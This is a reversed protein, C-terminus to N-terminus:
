SLPDIRGQIRVVYCDGKKAKKARAAIAPWFRLVRWAQDDLLFHDFAHALFFAIVGASKLAAREPPNSMQSRDKTILVWGKAGLEKIWVVDPTDPPFNARLSTVEGHHDLAGLIAAYKPSLCNDIFFKM